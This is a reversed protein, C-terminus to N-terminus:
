ILEKFWILQAEQPHNRYARQDIAVLTCGMGAYFRCAGVNTNQTEVKLMRGNRARIWDETAHFLAAGVGASRREPRVRIDWLAALDDRGELMNAGQARFAIVAGGIREAGDYAALLGWNSTDFSQLWRAPGQGEAADYDKLWPSDVEVETLVIGGLGSDRRSLQLVRDVWFSIPIEGHQDLQSIREEDIRLDVETMNKPGAMAAFGRVSKLKPNNLCDL